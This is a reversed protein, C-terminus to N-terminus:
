VNCGDVIDNGPEIYGCGWCPTTFTRRLSAEGRPTAFERNENTIPAMQDIKELDEQPLSEFLRFKSLSWPKNMDLM